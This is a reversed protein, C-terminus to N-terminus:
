AQWRLRLEPPRRFAFGHPESPDVLELGGLRELIARVAIPGQLRAMNFGLCHHIGFSFALHHRANERRVDFRAAEEFVDSDRGAALTSVGVFEGRGLEIGGLETPGGTWREIFAVPPILRMGEEVANGVLGPDAKVAALEDPHRLLLYVANTVMSEVTEIAGFLIVRLQAVIEEDALGGAETAVVATISGDAESRVRALERHLIESLEARAADARRQPEPDGDYVMAGAFAEYFGDIKPVDDLSLGLIDGAVGIAFPAAFDRVLECSGRPALGALMGEVRAAVREEFREHVARRRFPEDFPLRQREHEPSDSTLMMVGLSARVLNPEAWVTFDATRALVSRALPYGTVLWGGLAPVWSVPEAERLRDLAAIREHDELDAFEIAAGAPFRGRRRAEEEDSLVVQPVLTAM